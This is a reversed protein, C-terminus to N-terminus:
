KMQWLIHEIWSDELMKDPQYTTKLDGDYFKALRQWLMAKFDSRYKKILEYSSMGTEYHILKILIRGESRKLQKLEESFHERIWRDHLKSIRRKQRKSETYIFDEEIEQLQKKAKQAYPYVKHVKKRLRYYKLREKNNLNLPTLTIENLLETAINEGNVETSDPIQGYCFNSWTLLTILLLRIM